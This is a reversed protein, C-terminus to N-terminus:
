RKTTKLEEIIKLRELIIQEYQPLMSVHSVTLNLPKPQNPKSKLPKSKSSLSKILEKTLSECNSQQAESIM